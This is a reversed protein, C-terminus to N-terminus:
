RPTAARTAFHRTCARITGAIGIRELDPLVRHRLGYEGVFMVVLLVPNVLNVLLSWASMLGAFYLLASAAAIALFFVTWALTLRRTYRELPPWMGEHVVRAMHTIFAEHGRRLTRGFVWALALNIGIHEVFFVDSYHTELVGWGRWLAFAVAAVFAVMLLRHQLRKLGWLVFGSLPVLCLLAGAGAPLGNVLALHMAIAFAVSAAIALAVGGRRGAIV